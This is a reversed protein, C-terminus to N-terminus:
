LKQSAAGARAHLTRPRGDLIELVAVAHQGYARALGVDIRWVQGECASNIGGGQLTHGVVM